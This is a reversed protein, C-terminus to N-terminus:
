FSFTFGPTVLTGMDHSFSSDTATPIWKRIDTLAQATQLDTHGDAYLVTVLKTYRGLPVGSRGFAEAEYQSGAQQSQGVIASSIAGFSTWHVDAGITPAHAIFCGELSDRSKMLGVTKPTSSCFTLTETPRRIHTVRTAVPSAPKGTSDIADHLAPKAVINGNITVQRWWGGIYYANYGFAPHRAFHKIHDPETLDLEASDDYFFLVEPNFDLFPMLRWTYPAAVDQPLPQKDTGDWEVKWLTQVDEEIYGPLASDEYNNAYMSWALGVQRLFNMETNKRSRKQAGSLAPLLIGVLLMIIGIVVLIEIITFGQRRKAM